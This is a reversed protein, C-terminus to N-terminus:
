YWQRVHKDAHRWTVLDDHPHSLPFALIPFSMPVNLTLKTTAAFNNQNLSRNLTVTKYSHAYM